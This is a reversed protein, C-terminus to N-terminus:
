INREYDSLGWAQLEFDMRYWDPAEPHNGLRCTKYAGAWYIDEKQKCNHSFQDITRKM